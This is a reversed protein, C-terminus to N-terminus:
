AVGPAMAPWPIDAMTAPPAAMANAAATNIATLQAVAANRAALWQAATPTVVLGNLTVYPLTTVGLSNLRDYFAIHGETCGIWYDVSAVTLKAGGVVKRRNAESWINSITPAMSVRETCIGSGTIGNAVCWASGLEEVGDCGNEAAVEAWTPNVPPNGRTWPANTSGAPVVLRKSM